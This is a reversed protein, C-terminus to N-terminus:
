RIIVVKKTEFLKNEILLQYLYIGSSLGNGRSDKGDWSLQIDQNKQVDNNYLTNVLQGKINFVNLEMQGQSPATIVLHITTSGSGFPNPSNQLLCDGVQIELEGGEPDIPLSSNDSGLLETTAESWDDSKIILCNPSNWYLGATTDPNEIVLTITLLRSSTTGVSIGSTILEIQLLKGDILTNITGNICDGLNSSVPNSFANDTVEFVLTSNFSGFLTGLATNTDWPPDNRQIYVDFSYSIGANIQVNKIELTCDEDDKEFLGNDTRPNSIKLDITNDDRLTQSFLLSSIGILILLIIIKKMNILFLGPDAM